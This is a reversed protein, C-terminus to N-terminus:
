ITKSGKPAKKYKRRIYNIDQNIKAILADKNKFKKEDRIHELFEVKLKKGYIVSDFDFIFVEILAAKEQKLTPAFGINAAGTYRHGNYDVAVAWVGRAPIEEYKIKINATPFGIDRGIHRGEIVEGDITYPRGLMKNVLKIDGQALKERIITSSVKYGDVMKDPVIKVSFGLEKSMKKLLAVNGRGGRGFVFDSGAVISKMNLKGCLIDKVFNEPEVRSVKSIDLLVCIDIGHKEIIEINHSHKKILKLETNKSFYRDPHGSFTVLISKGHIAAAEKKVVNILSLHGTHVGDFVGVTVASKTKLKLNKVTKIIKM